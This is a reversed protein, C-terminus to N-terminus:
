DPEPQRSHKMHAAGARLIKIPGGGSYALLHGDPSLALFGGNSDIPLSFRESEIECDWFVIESATMSVSALTNGDQCYLADSVVHSGGLLVKGAQWDSTNWLRVEASETAGAHDAVTALTQGDPSFALAAIKTSHGKLQAISDGNERSWVNVQGDSQGTVLHNGGPSFSLSTVSHGAPRFKAVRVQREVDWIQVDGADSTVHPTGDSMALYKGSPSFVLHYIQRGGDGLMGLQEGDSLRLLSCKGDDTASFAVVGRSSVAVAGLRPGPARLKTDGEALTRQSGDNPNWVTIAYNSDFSPPGTSKIWLAVLNHEDAFVMESVSAGPLHLKAPVKASERLWVKGLTDKVTGATAVRRGDPSFDLSYAMGAHGVFKETPMGQGLDIIGITKNALSMALQDGNGPPFCMGLLPAPCGLSKPNLKGTAVDWWFVMGKGQLDGGGTLVDKDDPTFALAYLLKMESPVPTAGLLRMENANWLGLQPKGDYPVNGRTATAMTKGDGSIALLTIADDHAKRVTVPEFKELNWHVLEGSGKGYRGGVSVLSKGDPMFVLDFVPTDERLLEGAVRQEDISWLVIRGDHGVSALMKGDPSFRVRNVSEKHQTHVAKQRGTASDWIRVSKDNGGTALLQGDPSFAISKIGDRHGVLDVQNEHCKQWLYHWPFSRLDIQDSKPHHQELLTVARAIRGDDIAQRAEVLHAALLQRRLKEEASIARERQKATTEEFRTARESEVEVIKKQRDVEVLAGEKESKEFNVIAWAVLSGLAIAMLSAAMGTSLLAVVPNRRCWRVTREFRSIPRSHIPEGRLFRNLEDRVFAATIPRDAPAKSLCKLCLVDLDRSIDANRERPQKPETQVIARWLEARSNGRFPREGTLLEYLIIGMSWIDSRADAKHSDGEVQEPSMYAPTGLTAGEITQLESSEERRAMGFDMLMPEGNPTLMINGPKVDRHCHVGNVHAYHLADALKAVLQATEHQSFRQGRQLADRLSEGEVLSSVIYLTGAFEDAEYVPVINPHHLQRAARAERFFRRRADLSGDGATSAKLAVARDFQPDYARYVKGYAGRGLEAKLEFRGMRQPSGDEAPPLPKGPGSDIPTQENDLREFVTDILAPDTGLRQKYEEPTPQEGVSRRHQIELRLLVRAVYNMHAHEARQLFRELQPREGSTWSQKFQEALADIRRQAELGITSTDQQTPTM